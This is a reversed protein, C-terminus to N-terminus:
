YNLLEALKLELRSKPLFNDELQSAFPVPTDLSGVRM